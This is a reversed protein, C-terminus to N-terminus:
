STQYDWPTSELEVLFGTDIPENRLQYLFSVYEVETSGKTPHLAIDSLSYVHRLGTIALTNKGEAWFQKREPAYIIKFLPINPTKCLERLANWSAESTYEDKRKEHKYEILGVPKGHNYECALFDIDVMPADWGWLRHRNSIWQDRWGTREKRVDPM